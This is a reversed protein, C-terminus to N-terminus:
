QRLGSPANIRQYYVIFFIGDQVREPNNSWTIESVSIRAKDRIRVARVGVIFRGERSFTLTYQLESTQGVPFLNGMLAQPGTETQPVLFLEYLVTDGEPLPTGGLLTNVADWAVTAQDVVHDQAFVGFPLLVILGIILIQKM